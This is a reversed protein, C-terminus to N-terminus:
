LVVGQGTTVPVYETHIVGGSPSPALGTTPKTLFDAFGEIPSWGVPIQHNSKIGNARRVELEAGDPVFTAPFTMVVAAHSGDSLLHFHMLLPSARRTSETVPNSAAPAVWGTQARGYNHPLGFLSRNDVSGNPFQGAHSVYFNDHDAAFEPRYWPTASTPSKATGAALATETHGDARFLHQHGGARDRQGYSRYIQFAWGIENMLDRSNGPRTACIRIKSTDSLATYPPEGCHRATGMYGEIQAKYAEVSVPLATIAPPAGDIRPDGTLSRIALSGFGRRSRAGLGGILGILAMADILTDRAMLREADWATEELRAVLFSTDTKKRDLEVRFAEFPGRNADSIRAEVQFGKYKAPGRGEKFGQATLYQVGSWNEWERPTDQWPAPMGAVLGKLAFTVRKCGFPKAAWGFVVAEWFSAVAANGGYRGLALFRWWWRIMNAYGALRFEPAHNSGGVMLPTVIQYDAVIAAQQEAM